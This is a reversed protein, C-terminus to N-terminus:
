IKWWRPTVKFSTITNDYTFTNTGSALTPLDSGLAIVGNLSVISGNQITWCEGIDCDIYVTDTVVSKTSDGVVVLNEGGNQIGGPTLNADTVTASVTEVIQVKRTTANYSVTQSISYSLVPTYRTNGIWYQYNVSGSATNTISSSTGITIQSSFETTTFARNQTTRFSANTDTPQTTDDRTGINEVSPSAATAYTRAKIKGSIIATDGVNVASEDLAYQSSIDYSSKSLMIVEGIPVNEIEIEYGNFDITGYGKVALLPESEFLTPNSLTGSNAVTTAAEGSTLWRQPKCEFTIEFEGAILQTPDVDLGKSYVAMRYEGSNYDDELRCYGKKSCLWNRFNSIKTAFTSEDTGYMGAKYTVSINKFRGQDLAFNGNRGPIEIQKVDREPANFVGEGTLYVGYNASSVGDFTFTKYPRIGM